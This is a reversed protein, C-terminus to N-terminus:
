NVGKWIVGVAAVISAIATVVQAAVGYVGRRRKREEDVGGRVFAIGARTLYLEGSEETRSWYKNTAQSQDESAKARPWPPLAVRYWDAQRRVKRSHRVEYYDSISAHEFMEHFYLEDRKDHYEQGSLSRLQEREKRFLREILWREYREGWALPVLRRLLAFGLRRMWRTTRSSMRSVLMTASTFHQKVRSSPAESPKSPQSILM